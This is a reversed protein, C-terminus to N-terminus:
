PFNQGIRTTFTIHGLFNAKVPEVYTAGKRSQWQCDLQLSRFLGLSKHDLTISKAISIHQQIKEGGQHISSLLSCSHFEGGWEYDLSNYLTYM